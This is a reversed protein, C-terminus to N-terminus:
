NVINMAAADKLLEDQVAPSNLADDLPGSTLPSVLEFSTGVSVINLHALMRKGLEKTSMMLVTITGGNLSFLPEMDKMQSEIFQNKKTINLQEFASNLKEAEQSGFCAFYERTNGQGLQVRCQQYFRLAPNSSNNGQQFLRPTPEIKVLIVPPCPDDARMPIQKFEAKDSRESFQDESGTRLGSLMLNEAAEIPANNDLVYHGGSEARFRFVRFTGQKAGKVVYETIKPTNVKGLLWLQGANM